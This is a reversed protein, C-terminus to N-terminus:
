RPVPLTLDVDTNFSKITGGSVAGSANDLDAINQGAEVTYHFTM